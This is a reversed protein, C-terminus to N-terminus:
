HSRGVPVNSYIWGAGQKPIQILAKGQHADLQRDSRPNNESQIREPSSKLKDVFPSAM